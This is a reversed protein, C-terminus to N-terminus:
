RYRPYFGTAHASDPGAPPQAPFFTAHGGKSLSRSGAAPCAARKSSGPPCNGWKGRRIREKAVDSQLKKKAESKKPVHERGYSICARKYFGLPGLWMRSWEMTDTEVTTGTVSM